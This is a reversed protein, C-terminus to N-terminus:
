VGCEVYSGDINNKECFAVQNHLSILRSYPLMTNNTIIGINRKVDENEFGAIPMPTSIKSFSYGFSKFIKKIIKKM